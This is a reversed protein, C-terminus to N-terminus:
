PSAGPKEASLPSAKGIAWLFEFSRLYIRGQSVAPSSSIDDGLENTALLKFEKGAQVVSVVGDRATLYIKGAAFVPSARHRGSHTRKHYHEKGTRADLCILNGNERCLYVEDGLILPSPVDPTTSFKWARRNTDTTIDGTGDPKLGLVVGGKASPVVILGPVCAPSAVFRLTPDYRSPPHLGGCRWIEHGDALSHAIIFDAGHTLLFERKDDRYLIPSAYSHENEARADSQRHHRWLEKGTLKNRCIVLAERTQPNGDGHILQLYLHDGDLVPTSTMGFQIKFKGYTQQLNESWVLQGGVTYCALDGSGVFAWVHAGDTSPSPAALNGEDGRAARNGTGLKHKWLQKGGTSVALLVLDEGEASTLFIHNGWIVPTAGAMGPLRLKWAVNETASWTTPLDTEASLGNNHPGRWQPWNEALAATEQGPGALSMGVIVLFLSGRRLSFRHM